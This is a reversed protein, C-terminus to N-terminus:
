CEQPSVCEGLSNRVYGYRCQCGVKCYMPCYQPVHKYCNPDCGSACSPDMLWMENKGCGRGRREECNPCPNNPDAESSPELCACGMSIGASGICSQDNEDCVRGRQQMSNPRTENPQSAAIMNVFLVAVIAVLFIFIRSMTASSQLCFAVSVLRPFWNGKIYVGDNHQGDVRLSKECQYEFKYKRCSGTTNRLYGDDCRCGARCYDPCFQPNPRECTPECVSGCGSFHENTGCQENQGHTSVFLVAAIAVLFIFIRSMTASSQLCTVVLPSERFNTAMYICMM